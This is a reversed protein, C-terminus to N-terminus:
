EKTSIRDKVRLIHIKEAPLGYRMYLKARREDCRVFYNDNTHRLILEFYRELKNMTSFAGRGTMKEPEKEIKKSGLSFDDILCFSLMWSNEDFGKSISVIYDGTKIFYLELIGPNGGINNIFLKAETEPPFNKVISNVEGLTTWLSEQKAEPNEM